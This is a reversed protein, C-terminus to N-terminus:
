NMIRVKVVEIFGKENERCQWFCDATFYIWPETPFKMDGIIQVSAIFDGQPNFVDFSDTSNKDKETLAHVLINGESDILINNFAPRYKPFKTNEVVYEPVKESAGDSSVSLLANFFNQRDEATVKLPVYKRSFTSHLKKPIDIISIKYDDSFGAVIEGKQGVDWYVSPCYPQPLNVGGGQIQMFKHKWVDHSYVTDLPEFDESSLLVLSTLQSREPEAPFMKEMEMILNGNSLAEMKIPYGLNTPLKKSFLFNGDPSMACLRRNGLDLVVILNNSYVIQYPMSFDGPGQGAKGITALYKGQADFKKINNAKADCIYVNGEDDSTIGIPAEFFVGAPMSEDGIILTPVFRVKSNLYITKLSACEVQLSFVIMLASVFVLFDLFIKM